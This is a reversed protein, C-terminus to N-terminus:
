AGVTNKHKARGPVKRTFAGYTSSQYNTVHSKQQNQIEAGVTNKGKARGSVKRTFAGYTASQYNTIHPKQQNQIESRFLM